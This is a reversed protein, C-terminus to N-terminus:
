IHVAILHFPRKVIPTEHRRSQQSADTCHSNSYRGAESEGESQIDLQCQLWSDCVLLFSRTKMHTLTFTMYVNFVCENETKYHIYIDGQYIADYEM